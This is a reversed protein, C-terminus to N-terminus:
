VAVLLVIKAVAFISNELPVWLTQRLGTFVSDQLSFICWTTVAGIFSLAWIPSSNVIKLTPSWIDVGLLFLLSVLSAAVLTALYAYVVLRLTAKGAIPIFRVLVNNMSLQAVGALFLMASIIASNWGLVPPSYYHAALVWYAFGLVSTTGSSLMLAYANRYLPLQFHTWAGAVQLRDRFFEGM